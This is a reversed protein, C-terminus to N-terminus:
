QPLRDLLPLLVDADESVTMHIADPERVWAIVGLVGLRDLVWQFALAQARSEYIRAIDLAWGTTHLSYRRTAERNGTILADQYAGDRVTSTVVLARAGSLDRVQAGIYLALALAEPRLGRYLGPPQGIRRALEGMGRHRDLGTMEPADPLARIDGDDWADRLQAPTRFRETQSAPHLVEEASAKATQLDATRVLEDRDERWLRMIERAAEVKWFYNASDDGFGALRRYARRHRRPTSDFYVRPWDLEEDAVVEGIPDDRRRSFDRLVTELNGMGMHYSVFALDARGFRERALKLYRGAAALSKAPDFREDVRRRRARLREALADRGRREARVIRRTLGRSEDADVRMGLLNQGTEALIQTLGVAGEFGNPTVADPRGASELFVLGELRDPDVGAARAAREVGARWGATRAATGVAGGPSNAYLPHAVGFAARQALEEGRDPHYAFPDALPAADEGAAVTPVVPVGPPPGGRGLLLWAGLAALALVVAAM